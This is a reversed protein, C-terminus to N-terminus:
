QEGGRQALWVVHQRGGRAGRARVGHEEVTFGVCRLRRAFAQNPAASWVALVGKPRLAEWAVELGVQAYLWSNGSRTLGQPGNDVDLLIADYAAQDEGLVNAVDVVRVTVRPDDLPHGALGGLFERNWEVVAPVLEAVTVQSNSGLQRLAAATTYGMGLGGILIRPHPHGTIMRCALEALADESGHVASDMLSRNKVRISYEEGRRYLSLEEGDGPAQASGLFEWTTM